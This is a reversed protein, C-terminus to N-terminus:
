CGHRAPVLAWVIAEPVSLPYRLLSRAAGMMRTLPRPWWALQERTVRLEADLRALEARLESVVGRLESTEDAALAVRAALTSCDRACRDRGDKELKLQESTLELLAQKEDAERRLAAVESETAALLAEHQSLDAEMHSLRTYARDRQSRAEASAARELSLAHESVAAAARVGEVENRCNRWGISMESARDEANSLDRELANKEKELVSKEAEKDRLLQKLRELERMALRVKGNDSDLLSKLAHVQIRLRESCSIQFELTKRLCRVEDRRRRWACVLMFRGIRAAAQEEPGELPYKLIEKSTSDRKIRKTPTLDEMSVAKPGIKVPRAPTSRLEELCSRIRALNPSQRQCRTTFKNVPVSFLKNKHLVRQYRAPPTTQMTSRERSLERESIDGAGSRSVPAPTEMKPSQM